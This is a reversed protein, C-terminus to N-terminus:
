NIYKNTQEKEAVFLATTLLVNYSVSLISLEFLEETGDEEGVSDSDLANGDEKCVAEDM